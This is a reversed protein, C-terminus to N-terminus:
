FPLEYPEPFGALIDEHHSLWLIVSGDLECDVHGNVVYKGCHILGFRTLTELEASEKSLRATSNADQYMARIARRSGLGLRKMNRKIRCSVLLPSQRVWVTSWKVSHWIVSTGSILFLLGFCQGFDPCISDLCVHCLYQDPVFLVIGSVIFSLFSMYPWNIKRIWDWVGQLTQTFSM